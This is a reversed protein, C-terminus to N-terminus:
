FLSLGAWRPDKKTICFTISETICPAPRSKIKLNLILYKRNWFLIERLVEDGGFGGIINGNKVM